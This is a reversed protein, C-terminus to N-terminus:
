SNSYHRFWYGALETSEIRLPLMSRLSRPMLIRPESCSTAPMARSRGVGIWPLSSPARTGQRAAQEYAQAPLFGLADRNSDANTQVSQVLRLVENPKREIEFLRQSRSM